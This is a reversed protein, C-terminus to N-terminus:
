VKDHAFCWELCCRTAYFVPAVWAVVFLSGPLLMKVSKKSAKRAFVRSTRVRSIEISECENQLEIFAWTPLYREEALEVVDGLPYASRANEHSSVICKLVTKGNQGEQRALGPLTRVHFFNQAVYRREAKMPGRRLNKHEARRVGIPCTVPITGPEFVVYERLLHKAFGNVKQRAIAFVSQIIRARYRVEDRVFQRRSAYLFSTQSDRRCTGKIGQEIEGSM